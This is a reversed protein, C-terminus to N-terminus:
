TTPADLKILRTDARIHLSTHPPDNTGYKGVSTHWHLNLATCDLGYVTYTGAQGTDNLYKQADERSTWASGGPYYVDFRKGNVHQGVFRQGLKVCDEPEYDRFLAEYSETHGVTFLM